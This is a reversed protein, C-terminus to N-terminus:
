HLKKELYEIHKELNTIISNSPSSTMKSTGLQSQSQSHTNAYLRSEHKPTQYTDYFNQARLREKTKNKHSYM